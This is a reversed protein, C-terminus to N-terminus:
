APMTMCVHFAVSLDFKWVCGNGNVWWSPEDMYTELIPKQAAPAAVSWVLSKDCLFWDPKMFGTIRPEQVLWSRCADGLADFRLSARWQDHIKLVEEQFTEFSM